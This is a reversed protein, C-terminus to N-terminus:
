LLTARAEDICLFILEAAKLGLGSIVREPTKNVSIETGM